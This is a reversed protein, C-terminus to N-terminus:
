VQNVKFIVQSKQDLENPDSNLNLSFVKADEQQEVDITGDYKSDSKNYSRNSLGLVVGIFANVAAITGVVEEANPFGWIQALAFYLTGAAPLVLQAAKKGIDYTRNSLLPTVAAHRAPEEMKAGQKPKSLEIALSEVYSIVNRYCDLYTSNREDM